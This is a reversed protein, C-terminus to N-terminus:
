CKQLVSIFMKGKTGFYEAGSDVNYPYTTSWLRMEYILM